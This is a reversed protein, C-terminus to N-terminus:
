DLILPAKKPLPLAAAVSSLGAHSKLVISVKPYRRISAVGGDKRGLEIHFRSYVENASCAVAVPVSKCPLRILYNDVRKGKRKLFLSCVYIVLSRGPSARTTVKNTCPSKEALSSCISKREAQM